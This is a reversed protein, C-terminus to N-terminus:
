WETRWPHATRQQRSPFSSQRYSFYDLTKNRDTIWHTARLQQKTTTKSIAQQWEPRQM